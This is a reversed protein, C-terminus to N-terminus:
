AVAPPVVDVPGRSSPATGPGEVVSRGANRCKAVIAPTFTGVLLLPDRCPAHRRIASFPSLTWPCPQLSSHATVHEAEGIAPSCGVLPRQPSLIWFTSRGGSATCFVTRKSKVCTAGNRCLGQARRKLLWLAGGARHLAAAIAGRQKAVRRRGFLTSEYSARQNRSFGEPERWVRWELVVKASKSRCPIGLDTKRHSMPPRSKSPGVMTPLIDSQCSSSSRQSMGNRLRNPCLARRRIHGSYTDPSIPGPSRLLM